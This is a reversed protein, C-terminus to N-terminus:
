DKAGIGLNSSRNASVVRLTEWSAPSYRLGMKVSSSPGGGVLRQVSGMGGPARRFLLSGTAAPSRQPNDM